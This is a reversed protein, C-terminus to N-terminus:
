DTVPDVIPTNDDTAEIEGEQYNPKYGHSNEIAVTAEALQQTYDVGPKFITYERVGLLKHLATLLEPKKELLAGAVAYTQPDSEPIDLAKSWVRKGGSSKTHLDCIAMAASRLSGTLQKDLLNVTASHWDWYSRQKGQEDFFWKFDAQIMKRGPGLSNKQSILKITAGEEGVNKIDSIRQLRTEFTAQFRVSYGGPVHYEIVGNAGKQPKLHNVTGLWFPWGVLKQPMVKMFSSIKLADIPHARDAYGRENVADQVEESSKATLSDIGFGIPISKGPGPKAKTGVLAAKITDPSLLYTLMKQWEELSEAVFLEVAANDYNHMSMRLSDSDKGETEIHYNKGGNCRIWRFKEYLFASKCSEPTGFIQEVRQLPMISCQYLYRLSLAPLYIGVLRAESEKGTFVRDEGFNKKAETIISSLCADIDEPTINIPKRNSRGM